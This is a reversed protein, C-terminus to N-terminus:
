KRGKHIAKIIEEVTMKKRVKKRFELLERLPSMNKKQALHEPIKEAIAESVFQSVQRKPVQKQLFENVFVPISVTIRATNHRVGASTRINTKSM